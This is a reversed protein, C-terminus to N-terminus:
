IEIMKSKQSPKVKSILEEAENLIDKAIKIDQGYLDLVGDTIATLLEIIQNAQLYVLKKNIHGNEFESKLTKLMTELSSLIKSKRM